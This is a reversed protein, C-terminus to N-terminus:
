LYITDPIEIFVSDYDTTKINLAIRQIFNHKSDIFM